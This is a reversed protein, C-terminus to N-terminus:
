LWLFVSQDGNLYLYTQIRYEMDSATYLVGRNPNHVAYGLLRNVDNLTDKNPNVLQKSVDIVAPELTPDANM